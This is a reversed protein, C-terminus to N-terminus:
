KHLWEIVSSTNMPRVGINKLESIGQDYIQSVADSVLIVKFDRESAEYITTRPCNPFNCGTAVITSVNLQNLFDELPTKFFAGWRSKYLIWEKEGIKQPQNSFLLNSDLKVSISPKIESVLESGESDPTAIRKGSEIFERRCLDVNSGDEKYLRVIHIIPLNLKRYEELIKQMQPIVEWTGKIEAVAGPLSFDNQTDITLLVSREKEPLTYSSM